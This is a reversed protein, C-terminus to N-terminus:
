LFTSPDQLTPKQAVDVRALGASLSRSFTLVSMLWISGGSRYNSEHFLLMPAAPVLDDVM